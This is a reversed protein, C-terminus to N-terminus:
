PDKGLSKLNKKQRRKVIKKRNNKFDWYVFSGVEKLCFVSYISNFYNISCVKHNVNEQCKEIFDYRNIWGSSINDNVKIQVM